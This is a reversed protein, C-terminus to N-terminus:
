SRLKRCTVAGIKGDVKLNWQRQFRRVAAATGTGYVGEAVNIQEGRQRLLVQAQKVDDGFMRPSKLELKRDCLDACAPTATLAFITLLSAGIPRKALNLFHPMM